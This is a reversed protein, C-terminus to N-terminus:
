TAWSKTAVGILGAVGRRARDVIRNSEMANRYSSRGNPAGIERLYHDVAEYVSEPKPWSTAAIVTETSSRSPRETGVAAFRM